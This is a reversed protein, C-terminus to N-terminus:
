SLIRIPAARGIEWPRPLGELTQRVLGAIAQLVSMIGHNGRRQRHHLHEKVLSIVAEITEKPDIGREHLEANIEDIPMSEYRTIEPDVKEDEILSYIQM